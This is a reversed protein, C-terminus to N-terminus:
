LEATMRVGAIWGDVDDEGLVYKDQMYQLDVTLALYDNLGFNVYAEFVQSDKLSEETQEAG